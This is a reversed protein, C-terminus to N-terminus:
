IIVGWFSMVLEDGCWRPQGSSLENTLTMLGSVVTSTLVCKNVISIRLVYVFTHVWVCLFVQVCMCVHNVCEKVCVRVYLFLVSICLFFVVVVFLSASVRFYVYLWMFMWVFEFVQYICVRMCPCVFLCVNVCM